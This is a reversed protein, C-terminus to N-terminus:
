LFLINITIPMNIHDYKQVIFSNILVNVMNNGEFPQNIVFPGLEMVFTAMIKKHDAMHDCYETGYYLWYQEVFLIYFTNHM